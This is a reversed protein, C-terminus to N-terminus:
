VTNVLSWNLYALFWINPQNVIERSVIKLMVSKTSNALMRQLNQLKEANTGKCQIYLLCVDTKPAPKCCCDNRRRVKSLRWVTYSILNYFLINIFCFSTHYLVNCKQILTLLLWSLAASVVLLIQQNQSILLYM